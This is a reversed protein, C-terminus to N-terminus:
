HLHTPRPIVSANIAASTSHKSRLRPKVQPKTHWFRYINFGRSGRCHVASHAHTNAHPLFSRSKQNFTNAQTWSPFHSDILIRYIFFWWPMRPPFFILLSDLKCFLRDLHSIGPLQSLFWLFWWMLWWVSSTTKFLSKTETIFSGNVTSCVWEDYWWVHFQILRTPELVCTCLVACKTIPLCNYVFIDYNTKSSFTFLYMERITLCLKEEHRACYEAAKQYLLQASFLSSPTGLPSWYFIDSEYLNIEGIADFCQLLTM